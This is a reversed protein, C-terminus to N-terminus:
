DIIEAEHDYNISYRKYSEGIQRLIHAIRPRTLELLKADSTYKQALLLEQEGGAYPSRITVGRMNLHGCLIAQEFEQSKIQEIVDRVSEHPWIGDNGKPSKSLYNGIQNDGIKLRGIKELSERAEQIWKTLINKDINNGEQGPLIFIQELLGYAIEGRQQIFDHTLGQETDEQLDDIWGVLQAFFGPDNRINNILYQPTFDEHKLLKLYFWELLCIDKESITESNQIFKISQTINYIVENDFRGNSDTPNTAVRTLVNFVVQKDLDNLNKIGFLTIGIANIAALPRDYQLLKFLVVSATKASEDQVIFNSIKSWFFDQGDQPITEVLELIEQNLVYQMCLLLKAKKIPSWQKNKLLLKKAMVYNNSVLNLCYGTAFEGKKNESELWELAWDLFADSFTSQFATSGILRPQSGTYILEEIGEIGKSKYIMELVLIRKQAFLREQEKYNSKRRNLPNILNPRYADFLFINAKICDTFNFHDYVKELQTLIDERWSWPADPFERHHALTNRLKNIIEERQEDPLREANVTLMKEIVRQTQEPTYSNFKNILNIIRHEVDRELEQLLLDVIKGVYDHFKSITTSREINKHWDRYKPTCIRTTSGHHDILLAIMLRWSVDPYHPILCNTLIQIRENHTASTNNIWGLYIDVLSNFPRNLYKGGPDIRSLCALSQSVGALYKKDWSILELAWLLSSHYCGGEFLGNGEENFLELLLPENGKLASEVSSLFVDPAAEALLTLCDQISFWFKINQNGDFVQFIWSRILSSPKQSWLECYQDGFLSLLALFDAIGQKLLSSYKPVARLISAMFRQNVPLDYTPNEDTLVLLAIQGLRELYFDALQSAILLWFDMKAVVQWLEGIKRIPPDSTKSLYTIQKEFESYNIGSLVEMAQRDHENNNYWASAFLIAFLIDPSTEEIWKPTQYDITKLLDHRLLPEFFGQTDRYLIRAKEDRDKSNDSWLKKLGEERDLRTQRKLKIPSRRADKDDIV